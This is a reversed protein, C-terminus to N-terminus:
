CTPFYDSVRHFIHEFRYEFLFKMRTSLLEEELEPWISHELFRFGFDNYVEDETAVNLLGTFLQKIKQLLREFFIKMENPNQQCKAINKETFEESVLLKMMNYRVVQEIASQKDLMALAFLCQKTSQSDLTETKICQLMKVELFRM